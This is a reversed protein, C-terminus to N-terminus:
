GKSIDVNETLILEENTKIKEKEFSLEEESKKAKYSKLCYIAYVLIQAAIDSILINLYSLDGFHWIVVMSYIVITTLLILLYIALIKSVEIRPKYKTKEEKILRRYEQQQNDRRIRDLEDEYEQETLKKLIFM